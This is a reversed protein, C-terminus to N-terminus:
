PLDFEAVLPLHDSATSAQKPHTAVDCHLLRPAVPEPLFAYDLRVHPDWTPFTFGADHAHLWRYADVYRADLMIQITKWRIRGGTLWHFARLRYPLKRIDLKEGPALTNFDGALIHFGHEYRAIGALLARLERVRLRETWNSHVASLHVGFVRSETGAPVIELFARRMPHPKHWQFFGIDIRSVFGVSHGPHAAWHTMGLRRAISEVVDPRRAEQLVVLDPQLEGLVDALAAERGVGGYRINYSVLRLSV